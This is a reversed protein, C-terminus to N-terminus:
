EEAAAEWININQYIFLLELKRLSVKINLLLYYKLFIINGEM